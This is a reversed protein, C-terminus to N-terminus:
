FDATISNLFVHSLQLMKIIPPLIHHNYQTTAKLYSSSSKTGIRLFTMNKRTNKNCLGVSFNSRSIEVDCVEYQSLFSNWKDKKKMFQHREM